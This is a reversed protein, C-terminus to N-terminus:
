GVGLTFASVPGDSELTLTATAKAEGPNAAVDFETLKLDCEWYGVNGLCVRVRKSIDGRWWTDYFQITAPKNDLVGAGSVGLSLSDKVLERFAPADPDACDRVVVESVGSRLTVGRETNILCPHNYAAPSGEDEIKILVQTWKLTTPQAM